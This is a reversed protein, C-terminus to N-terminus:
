TWLRMWRVLKKVAFIMRLSDRRLAVALQESIAFDAFTVRTDDAKWESSVEGFQRSFFGVQAKVAARGANIRHCLQTNYRAQAQRNRKMIGTIGQAM